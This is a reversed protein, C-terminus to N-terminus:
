GEMKWGGGMLIIQCRPVVAQVPHVEIILKYSKGVSPIFWTNPAYLDSTQAEVRGSWRWKNLSLKESFVEEGAADLVKMFVVTELWDPQQEPRGQLALPYDVRLYCKMSCDPLGILDYSNVSDINLNLEGLDLAFRNVGSSKGYDQFKGDGTYNLNPYDRSQSSLMSLVLKDCLRAVCGRGLVGLGVFLVSIVVLKKMLKMKRKMIGGETEREGERAETRQKRPRVQRFVSILGILVFVLYGVTWPISKGEGWAHLAGLSGCFILAAGAVGCCISRGRNFLGVISLGIAALAALIVILFTVNM